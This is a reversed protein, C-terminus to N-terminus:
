TLAGSGIRPPRSGEYGDGSDLSLERLCRICALRADREIGVAPHPKLGGAGTPVTMGENAILERAQECRDRAEMALTLTVMAADEGYLDFDDAIKRWIRRSSASLHKPAAPKRTPM